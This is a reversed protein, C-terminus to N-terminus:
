VAYHGVVRAIEATQTEQKNCINVVDVKMIRAPRTIGTSPLIAVKKNALYLTAASILHSPCRNKITEGSYM